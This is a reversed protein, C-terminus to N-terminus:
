KGTPGVESVKVEHAGLEDLFMKCPGGRHGTEKPDITVMVDKLPTSGLNIAVVVLQFETYRVFVYVGPLPEISDTTTATAPGYGGHQIAPYQERLRILRRYHSLLSAEDKMQMEVSTGKAAAFRKRWPKATTFAGDGSEAETWPMPTRLDPDPKTGPQGLEEGYYVFPVGPGLLLMAAAVRLAGADGKLESAVRIQDHNTLFRGYQNPPFYELTKRQADQIVKAKGTKAAQVMATALDFEFTLDM